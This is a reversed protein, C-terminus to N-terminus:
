PVVILETDIVIFACITGNVTTILFKTTILDMIELGASLMAYESSDDYIWMCLVYVPMCMM